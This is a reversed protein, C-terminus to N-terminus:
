GKRYSIKEWTICPFHGNQLAEEWLSRKGTDSPFIAYRLPYFIRILTGWARLTINVNCFQNRILETIIEAEIIIETTKASASVSSFCNNMWIRRPLHLCRRRRAPSSPAPDPWCDGVVGKTRPPHEWAWSGEGREVPHLVSISALLPYM